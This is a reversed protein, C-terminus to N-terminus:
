GLDHAPKLTQHRNVEQTRKVHAEWTSWHIFFGGAICSICFFQTWDRPQSSVRSSSMAVRELIRAQLIRYVSSGPLSYNMPDFCTLCLQSHVHLLMMISVTKSKLKCTLFSLFLSSWYWLTLLHSHWSKFEDWIARFRIKNVQRSNNWWCCFVEHTPLSCTGRRDKLVNFRLFGLEEEEAEEQSQAQQQKGTHSLWPGGGDHREPKPPSIPCPGKLQACLEGAAKPAASWDYSRRRWRSMQCSAVSVYGRPPSMM